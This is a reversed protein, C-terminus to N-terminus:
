ALRHLVKRAHPFEGLERHLCAMLYRARSAHESKGHAALQLGLLRDRPQKQALALELQARPSRLEPFPGGRPLLGVDLSGAWSSTFVLGQKTDQVFLVTHRGSTLPRALAEAAKASGARLARGVEVAWLSARNTEDTLPKGPDAALFRSFTLRGGDPSFAPFGAHYETTTLMSVKKTELDVIGIQGRRQRDFRTFALLRGDPSVAPHTAGYETVPERRKTGLDLREIRSMGEPGSALFVARGDPSFTPYSDATHRDTLRTLDGDDWLYADGKVDLRMSVFVVRKGDPSWAPQTDTTVHSTIRRPLGTTLDKVWIDLNGKQNSAYVLRRGDLALRGHLEDTTASALWVPQVAQRRPLVARYEELVQRKTAAGGCAALLAFLL